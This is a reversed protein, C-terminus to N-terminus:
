TILTQDLDTKNNSLVEGEKLKTPLIATSSIEQTSLIETALLTEKTVVSIEDLEIYPSISDSGDPTLITSEKSM